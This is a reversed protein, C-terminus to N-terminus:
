ERLETPPRNVWILRWDGGAGEGANEIMMTVSLNDIRIALAVDPDIGVTHSLAARIPGGHAVVVVDRADLRRSLTEMADGVRQRVELFTEGQPPLFDARCYWFRHRGPAAMRRVDEYTEGQWAGFNQEGFAPEEIIEPSDSRHDLIAAATAKARHLHSTVWVADDPLIRALTTFAARDSVDCQPDSCGYLRGGHGTVPAHRVWWWRTGTM